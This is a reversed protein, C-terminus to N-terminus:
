GCIDEQRRDRGVCSISDSPAINDSDGTWSAHSLGVRSAPLPVDRASAYSSVTSRPLPARRASICSRVASRHELDRGSSLPGGLGAGFLEFTTPNSNAHQMAQGFSAFSGHTRASVYTERDSDFMATPLPSSVGLPVQLQSIPLTRPESSPVATSAISRQTKRTTHSPAVHDSAIAAAIEVDSVFMDSARNCPNAPEHRQRGIDSSVSAKALGRGTLGCSAPLRVRSLGGGSPQRTMPARMARIEHELLLRGSSGRNQLDHQSTIVKRPCDDLTSSSEEHGKGAKALNEQESIVRGLPPLPSSSPHHSSEGTDRSVVGYTMIAGAAFGLLTGFVTSTSIATSANGLGGIQKNTPQSSPLAAGDRELIAQSPDQGLRHVKENFRIPPSQGKNYRSQALVGSGTSSMSMSPGQNWELVRAVEGAWPQQRTGTKPGRTVELPGPNDYVAEIKNGDMDTVTARDIGNVSLEDVDIVGQYQPSHLPNAQAGRRRFSAVASRTPAAFVLRSAGNVAEQSTAQRIELIPRGPTGFLVSQQTSRTSHSTNDSSVYVLGLPQLISAFFSTASPLHSVEVFPLVM